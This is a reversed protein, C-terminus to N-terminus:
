LPGPSRAAWGGGVYELVCDYSVDAPPPREPATKTRHVEVSWDGFVLQALFVPDWADREFPDGRLLIRFGPRAAPCSELLAARLARNAAQSPDVRELGPWPDRAQAAWLGV